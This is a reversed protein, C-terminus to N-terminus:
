VVGADSMSFSPAPVLRLLMFGIAAVKVGVKGLGVRGSPVIESWLLLGLRSLRPVMADLTLCRNQISTM